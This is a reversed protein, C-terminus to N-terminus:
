RKTQSYSAALYAQLNNIFDAESMIPYNNLPSNINLIFSFTYKDDYGSSHQYQVGLIVMIRYHIKHIYNYVRRVFQYM